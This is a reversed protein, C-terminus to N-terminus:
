GGVVLGPKVTGSPEVIPDAGEADQPVPTIKKVVLNAYVRDTDNKDKRHKIPAIFQHGCFADQMQELTGSGSFGANQMIAKAQGVSKALDSVFISERHNLGMLKEPDESDDLLAYVEQVECDFYITASDGNKTEVIDLGADKCEFRFVGKPTPEFGGEFADVNNMDIGALDALSVETEITEGAENQQKVTLNGM